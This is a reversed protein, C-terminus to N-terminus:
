VPKSRLRVEAQQVGNPSSATPVHWLSLERGDRVWTRTRANSDDPKGHLARIADTLAKFTAKAREKYAENDDRIVYAVRYHIDNGEYIELSHIADESTSSEFGDIDLDPFVSAGVLRGCLAEATLAPGGLQGFQKWTKATKSKTM